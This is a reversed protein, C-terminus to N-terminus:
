SSSTRQDIRLLKQVYSYDPVQGFGLSEGYECTRVISRLCEPPAWKEVPEKKMAVVRDLDEETAWPLGGFFVDIFSYCFGTIDDGFGPSWREMVRHSSHLRNGIMSEMKKAKGGRPIRIALGFDLIGISRKENDLYAINGPKMDRHVIGIKHCSELSNLGSGFLGLIDMKDIAPDPVLTEGFLDMAIFGSGDVVGFWRLNPVGQIHRLSRLMGAEHKLVQFAMGKDSSSSASKLAVLQDTRRNRAKWVQGFTGSGISSLLDFTGISM